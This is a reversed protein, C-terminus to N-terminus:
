ITDIRKKEMMLKALNSHNYEELKEAMSNYAIALEGFEDDQNINLRQSYNKKAIQQIGESLKKIPNAVYGPFSVLLFLSVFFCFSCFIGLYLKAKDSTQQVDNNKRVIANLNLEEIKYLNQKISAQNSAVSAKSSDKLNRFKEYYTRLDITAEKEGVETINNEQAKLNLEFKARSDNDSNLKGNDIMQQMNKAYQISEYNSKLIMKSDNGLRNISYISFVGILTILIFLLTIGVYIKSKIKLNM